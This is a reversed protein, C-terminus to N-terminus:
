GQDKVLLTEQLAVMIKTNTLPSMQPTQAMGMTNM